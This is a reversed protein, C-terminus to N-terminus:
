SFAHDGEGPRVSWQRADPPLGEGRLVLHQAGVGVFGLRGFRAALDAWAAVAGPVTCSRPGYQEVM